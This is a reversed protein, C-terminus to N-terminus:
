LDPVESVVQLALVETKLRGRRLETSDGLDDARPVQRPLSPVGSAALPAVLWSADDHRGPVELPDVEEQSAGRLGLVGAEALVDEGLCSVGLVVPNVLREMAETKLFQARPGAATEAPNGEM